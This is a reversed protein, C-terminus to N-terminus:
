SKWGLKTDDLMEAENDAAEEPHDIGIAAAQNETEGGEIVVLYSGNDQVRVEDLELGHKRRYADALQFLNCVTYAPTKRLIENNRGMLIEFEQRLKEYPSDYEPM